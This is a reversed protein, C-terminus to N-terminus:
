AHLEELSPLATSSPKKIAPQLNGFIELIQNMHHEESYERLVTERAQRGMREREEPHEIMWQMKKAFDDINGYDFLLGTEGDHIVDPISGLRTAVVPRGCAFAELIANPLNEYFESPVITFLAHHVLEHLPAADREFPRFLIRDVGLSKALEKLRVAEADNEDGVLQLSVNSQPMRAFARIATEVGKYPVFRGVFLIYPALHGPVAANLCPKTFTNVQHIREAPFGLEILERRMFETPAIFAQVKHYIKMWRHLTNAFVQVLSKSLSGHVCRHVVANLLGQKCDTCPHGDRYYMSSACVLNFDSMRMVVPIGLEVCADIASPSIHNNFNLFYALAPRHDRHIRRIAAKAARSYIARGALHLKEYWQVRMNKIKAEDSKTIPEIFYKRYPTPMTRSYNISLPIPEFDLRQLAQMVGMFYREAGGSIFHYKNVVLIKSKIM